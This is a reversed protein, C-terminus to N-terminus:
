FKFNMSQIGFLFFWFKYAKYTANDAAFLNIMLFVNLFGLFTIAFDFKFFYPLLCTLIYNQFFFNLKTNNYHSYIIAISNPLLFLFLFLNEKFINKNNNEEHFDMIIFQYFINGLPELKGFIKYQIISIINEYLFIYFRSFIKKIFLYIHFFALIYIFKFKEKKIQMINNIARQKIIKKNYKHILYDGQYKKFKINDDKERFSYLLISIKNLIMFIIDNLFDSCFQLLIFFIPFYIKSDNIILALFIFIVVIISYLIKQFAKMKKNSKSIDEKLFNTLNKCKKYLKIEFYPSDGGYFVEKKSKKNNLFVNIEQFCYDINYPNIYIYLKILIFILVIIYNLILFSFFLQYTKIFTNFYNMSNYKYLGYIYKIMLWIDFIIKILFIRQYIKIYFNSIQKKELIFISIIFVLSLLFSINIFKMNSQILAIIETTYNNEIYNNVFFIIISLIILNIYLLYGINEYIFILLIILFANVIINNFSDYLINIAFLQFIIFMFFTIYIIKSKGKSKYKNDIFFIYKIFYKIFKRLLLYEFLFFYNSTNNDGFCSLIDDFLYFSFKSKKVFYVYSFINIIVGFIILLIESEFIYIKYSLKDIYGDLTFFYQKVHIKKVFISQFLNASFSFIIIEFFNMKKNFLIIIKLFILFNLEFDSNLQFFTENDLIIILYPISFLIFIAFKLAFIDIFKDTFFEIYSTFVLIFFFLVIKPNKYNFLIKIFNIIATIYINTSKILEKKKKDSNDKNIQFFKTKNIGNIQTKSTYYNISNMAETNKNQSIRKPIYLPLQEEEYCM